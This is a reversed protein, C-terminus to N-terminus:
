DAMAEALLRVGLTLGRVFADEKELSAIQGYTEQLEELKEKGEHDLQKQLEEECRCLAKVLLMVEKHCRESDCSLTGEGRWLEVM